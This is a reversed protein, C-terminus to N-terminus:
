GDRLFYEVGKTHALLFLIDLCQTLVGSKFLIRRRTSNVWMKKGKTSLVIEGGRVYVGDNMKLQMCVHSFHINHLGPDHVGYTSM